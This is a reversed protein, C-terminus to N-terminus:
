ENIDGECLKATNVKFSLYKGRRLSLRGKDGPAILAYDGAPIKYEKREGSGGYLPQFTVYYITYAKKSTDKAKVELRKTILKAYFSDPPFLYNEIRGLLLYFLWVGLPALAAAVAVLGVFQRIEGIYGTM